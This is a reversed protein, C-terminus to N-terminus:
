GNVAGNTDMKPIRYWQPKRSPHTKRLYCRGSDDVYLAFAWDGDKWWDTRAVSDVHQPGCAFMQQGRIQANTSRTVGGDTMDRIGISVGALGKGGKYRAKM